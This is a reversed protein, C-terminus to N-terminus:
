HDRPRRRRDFISGTPSRAAGTSPRCKPRRPRGPPGAAASTARTATRTGGPRTLSRCRRASTTAATCCAWSRDPRSEPRRSLQRSLRDYGYPASSDARARGALRAAHRALRPPRRDVRRHGFGEPHLVPRHRAPSRPGARRLGRGGDRRPAGRRPRGRRRPQRERGRRALRAARAPDGPSAMAWGDIFIQAGIQESTVPGNLEASGSRPAPIGSKLRLYATHETSHGLGGWWLITRNEILYNLWGRGVAESGLDPCLWQGRTGPLLHLHRHHRRGHRHAPRGSRMCTTPSRASSRPSGSTRGARSRGASISASSRAWSAPTSVNRTTLRSRRCAM